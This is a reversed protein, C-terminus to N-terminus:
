RTLARMRLDNLLASGDTVALSPLLRGILDHLQTAQTLTLEAMSPGLRFFMAGPAPIVSITQQQPVSSSQM